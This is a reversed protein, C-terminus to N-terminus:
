DVPKVENFISCCKRLAYEIKTHGILINILAEKVYSKMSQNYLGLQM